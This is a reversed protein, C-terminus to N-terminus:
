FLPIIVFLVLSALGLIMLSGGIGWGLRAMHGPRRPVLLQLAFAILTCLGFGISFWTAATNPVFAVILVALAVAIFWVPLVTLWLM